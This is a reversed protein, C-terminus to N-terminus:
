QPGSLGPSRWLSFGSNADAQNTVGASLPGNYAGPETVKKANDRFLEGTSKEAKPSNQSGFLDNLVRQEAPTRVALASTPRVHPYPTIATADSPTPNRRTQEAIAARGAAAKPNETVSTILDPSLAYKIDGPIKHERAWREFIRGAAADGVLNNPDAEKAVDAPLVYKKYDSLAEDTLLGKRNLDTAKAFLGGNGTMGYAENAAVIFGLPGLVKAAKAAASGISGLANAVRGGSAIDETAEGAARPLGSGQAPPKNIETNHPNPVEHSPGRPKPVNDIRGKLTNYNELTRTGSAIDKSFQKQLARIESPNTAVKFSEDLQRARTQHDKINQEWRKNGREYDYVSGFDGNKSNFAVFINDKPNYFEYMGPQGPVKVGRTEPDQFFRRLYDRLDTQEKGFGLREFLKEGIWHKEHAHGSAIIGLVGDTPPVFGNPPKPKDM